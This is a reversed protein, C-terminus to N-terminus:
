EEQEESNGAREEGIELLLFLDLLLFLIILCSTLTFFVVSEIPPLVVERNVIAYKCTEQPRGGRRSAPRGSVSVM